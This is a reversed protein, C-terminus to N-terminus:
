LCRVDDALDHALILHFHRETRQQCRGGYGFHRRHDDLFLSALDVLISQLPQKSCQFRRIVLLILVPARGWARKSSSASCLRDQACCRWLDRVGVSCRGSLHITQGADAQIRQPRWSAQEVRRDKRGIVWSSKANTATMALKAVGVFATPHLHRMPIRIRGCSIQLVM